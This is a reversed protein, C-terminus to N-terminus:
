LKAFVAYFFGDTGHRHPWLRLSGPGESLPRLISPMDDPGLPALGSEGGELFRSAVKLGEESAFSCVSYILRGGPALREAAARILGLQREQNRALDEPQCAWKIDPRRRIVGLGTCPADVVALDFLEGGLDAEALEAAVTQPPRKLGLRVAELSLAALRRENPDVAVIKAEPALTAMALAKGGLGACADL